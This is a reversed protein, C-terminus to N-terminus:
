RKPPDVLGKELFLKATEVLGGVEEGDIIVWPYGDCAPFQQQFTSIPIDNGVEHATYEVGARGFLKKLTTCHSCGRSTYAVIKM